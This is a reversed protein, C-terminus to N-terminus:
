KRSRLVPFDFHYLTGAFIRHEETSQKENGKDDYYIYGYHSIIVFPINLSRCTDRIRMLGNGRRKGRTVFTHGQHFFGYKKDRRADFAGSVGKNMAYKILEGDFRWKEGLSTKIQQKQPGSLLSNKIGIGNDAINISIIGHRSHYQALFWWGSDKVQIGHEQVNGFIEAVVKSIFLKIELKDYKTFDNLLKSLRAEKQALVSNSNIYQREIEIVHHPHGTQVERNESKGIYNFFGSKYLYGNVRDEKSYSAVVIPRKIKCHRETFDIWQILSCLLTIASPWIKTCNQINISLKQADFDILQTANKVFNDIEGNELGFKKEITVVKEPFIYKHKKYEKVLIGRRIKEMKNRYSLVNKKEFSIKEKETMKSMQKILCLELSIRKGKMHMMFKKRKKRKANRLQKLKTKEINKM